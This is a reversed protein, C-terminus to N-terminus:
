KIKTIIINEKKKEVHFSMKTEENTSLLLILPITSIIRFVGCRSPAPYKKIGM